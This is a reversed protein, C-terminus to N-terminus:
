ILVLCGTISLLLAFMAEKIPFDTMIPHPPVIVHEPPM